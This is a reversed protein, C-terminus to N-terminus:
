QLKGTRIIETVKTSRTEGVQKAWKSDLLEDAAKDYLGEAMAAL